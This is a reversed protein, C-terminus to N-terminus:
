RVCHAPLLSTVRGETPRTIRRLVINVIRKKHAHTVLEVLFVRSLLLSAVCYFGSPNLNKGLHGSAVPKDLEACAANKVLTRSSKKLDVLVPSMKFCGTFHVTAPFVLFAWHRGTKYMLSSYLM